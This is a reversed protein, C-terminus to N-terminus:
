DQCLHWFSLTLGLRVILGLSASCQPTLSFPTKKWFKGNTLCWPRFEYKQNQEVICVLNKCFKFKYIYITFKLIDYKIWVITFKRKLTWLIRVARNVQWAACKDSKAETANSHPSATAKWLSSLEWWELGWYARVTAVYRCKYEARFGYPQSGIGTPLEWEGKGTGVIKDNCQEFGNVKKFKM